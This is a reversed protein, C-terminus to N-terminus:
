SFVLFQCIYAFFRKVEIIATEVEAVEAPSFVGEFKKLILKEKLAFRYYLTLYGYILLSHLM